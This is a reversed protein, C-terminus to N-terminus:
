LKPGALYSLFRTGAGRYEMLTCKTFAACAHTAKDPMATIRQASCPATRVVGAYEDSLRTLEALLRGPGIAGLVITENYPVSRAYAVRAMSILSM